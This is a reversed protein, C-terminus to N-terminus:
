EHQNGRPPFASHYRALMENIAQRTHVIVVSYEPVAALLVHDGPQIDHIRRAAAPIVICPKFPVTFLGDPSSFIVIGGLGPIVELKDGPQWGLARVIDSNKVRGSADVPGVGYLMTTDRSLQHLGMLPLPRLPEAAAPSLPLALAAVIEQAATRTGRTPPAARPEPATM